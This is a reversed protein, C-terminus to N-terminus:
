VNKVIWAIQMLLVCVSMPITIPSFEHNTNMNFLIMFAHFMGASIHFMVDM